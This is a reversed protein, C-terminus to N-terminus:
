KDRMANKVGGVANRNRDGDATKLKRYPCRDPALWILALGVTEILACVLAVEPQVGGHPSIIRDL